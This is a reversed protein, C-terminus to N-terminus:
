PRYEESKEIAIYIRNRVWDAHGEDQGPDIPAPAMCDQILHGIEHAFASYRLSLDSEPTAVEFKREFCFSRGAVCGKPTCDWKSEPRIFLSYGELTNCIDHQNMKPGLAEAAYAEIARDELDQIITESWRPAPQHTGVLGRYAIGCRTVSLTGPPPPPACGVLALLLVVLPLPRTWVKTHM